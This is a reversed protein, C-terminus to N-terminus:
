GSPGTARRASPTSLFRRATQRPSTTAADGEERLAHISIPYRWWRASRDPDGEERLAHISIIGASLVGGIHQTARRASPTSLFECGRKEMSEPHRDGEERLAHISIEPFHNPKLGLFSRRGGRPPRPYFYSAASIMSAMVADGEERLAHISIDANEKGISGAM